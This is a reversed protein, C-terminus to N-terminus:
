KFHKNFMQDFNEDDCKEYKENNVEWWYKTKDWLQRLTEQAPHSTSNSTIGVVGVRTLTPLLQALLAWDDSGLEALALTDVKWSEYQSMLHHLENVGDGPNLSISRM